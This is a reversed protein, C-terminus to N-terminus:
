LVVTAMNPIFECLYNCMGNIIQREVRCYSKKLKVIEKIQKPDPRVGKGNIGHAM